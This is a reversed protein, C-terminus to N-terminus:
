CDYVRGNNHRAWPRFGIYASSTLQALGLSFPIVNVHSFGARHMLNVLEPPSFCRNGWHWQLCSGLFGSRTAVLVIPAGPRLIRFMEQLGQAPDPLHELMHASIVIDFSNSNLPLTRVDSQYMQHHLHASALKSQAKNLMEPALDIGTIQINPAVTQAFALSFAATGIGCDCLQDPAFDHPLYDGHRLAQWLQQYARGYGLVQLQQHWWAAARNYTNALESSTPYVRQVSIQWWGVTWAM